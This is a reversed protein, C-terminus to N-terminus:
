TSRQGSRGTTLRASKRLSSPTIEWCSTSPLYWSNPSSSSMPSHVTSFSPQSDRGFIAASHSPRVSPRTGLRRTIYNRNPKSPAHHIQKCHNAHSKQEADAVGGIRVVDDRHGGNHAALAADPVGAQDSDEPANAVGNRDQQDARRNNQEVQRNRRANAEGHFQSDAEHQNKQSHQIKGAHCLPDSVPERRSM